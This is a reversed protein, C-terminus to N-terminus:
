PKAPVGAEGDDDDGHEEGDRRGHDADAEASASLQRRVEQLAADLAIRAFGPLEFPEPFHRTQAPTPPDLHFMQDLGNLLYLVANAMGHDLVVRLDPDYGVRRAFAEPDEGEESFQMSQM